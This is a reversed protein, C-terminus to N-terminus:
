ANSFLGIFIKSLREVTLEVPESMGSGLKVAEPQIGLLFISVSIRNELYECMMKLSLAHTSLGAAGIDGPRFIRTDGATGGFHIIDVILVTDPHSLVIKELYNEPSVGCDLCAAGIRGNLRDMLLSGAGDDGKMRNGVGAILVKGACIEELQQSLEEM